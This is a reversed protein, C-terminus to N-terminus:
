DMCDEIDAADMIEDEDLEEDMSQNAEIVKCINREIHDPEDRKQRKTGSEEPAPGEVNSTTTAVAQMSKRKRELALRRNEEM